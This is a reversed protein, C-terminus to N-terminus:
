ETARAQQTQYWYNLQYDNTYLLNDDQLFTERENEKLFPYVSPDFGLKEDLDEFANTLAEIHYIEYMNYIYQILNKDKLEQYIEQSSKRRYASYQELLLIFFDTENSTM